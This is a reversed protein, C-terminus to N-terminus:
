FYNVIGFHIKGNRFLIPNEFQKGLAYSFSMIGIKTEFNIGAGFGLPTDTIFQDNSRDEYWAMNVFSFLFSNQELLFRYELKGITYASAYISEEDFGRLSKLGGIRYLENIFLDENYIYASLLGPNIVHRGVPSLYYDFQLQGMFTTSTLDISEYVDPNIDSNKRITRSGTSGTAEILFGKRPNFRYDLIEYHITAGYSVITIDAYPPLTTINELGDTSQLDSQKDNIFAKIYNNGTLAYHIGLNKIVDTYTSDKKYISLFGDLGFPTNFLFPYLAYLKLDQTQVPLQRWNLEIVEGRKLSNQLKLHVEGTINFKGEENEDPLLGIVGDFQSAKKNELFLYLRTDKETFQVQSPKVEKVFPLERFRGTIKRIQSEKYVDGPSIGIYNYIYVPVINANGKITISDIKIFKNKEIALSASIEQGTIEISDLSVSAFPYGNNECNKLIKSTLTNVQDISFPKGSYLKNRYGTGDLLDDPVNGQRIEVWSYKEGRYVFATYNISDKHLSDIGTALFGESKLKGIYTKLFKQVQSSDKFSKQESIEKKYDNLSTNTSDTFTIKLTINKQGFLITIQFFLFFLFYNRFLTLM